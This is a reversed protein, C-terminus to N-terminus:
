FHGTCIYTLTTSYAGPALNPSVNVLYSVTFRRTLSVNPAAAVVDGDKFKFLNPQSYDPAVVANVFPGEPDAGVPPDTNTTLNIGFQNNGPASATPTALPNVVHTGAQLPTGYVIIDYGGSANTGAWMQSTATLPAGSDLQGLDTLNGGSSGTCSFDVIHAVCFVLQPPVQTEIIIPDNIQTLVSGLDIIPGTGDTSAYDSLRISFSHAMYTPNVINDLTYTSLTQGAVTPPRTLLLHNPSIVDLSYGTEGTQDSLVAGSVDLGAPAVCPDNPIPDICFEMDLSGVTTPTTYGLSVTYKTTAGPSIDYVFLSRPEFRIVVTADATFIMFSCLLLILTQLTVLRYPSLWISLGKLRQM